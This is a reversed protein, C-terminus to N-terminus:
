NGFDLCSEDGFDLMEQRASEAEFLEKWSAKRDYLLWKRISEAAMSGRPVSGRQELKDLAGLTLMWLPVSLRTTRRHLHRVQTTLIRAVASDEGEPTYVVLHLDANLGTEECRPLLSMGELGALPLM